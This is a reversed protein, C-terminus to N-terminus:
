PDGFQLTQLLSLSLMLLILQLEVTSDALTITSGLDTSCQHFFGVDTKDTDTKKAFTDVGKCKYTLRVTVQPHTYPGDCCQLELLPFGENM